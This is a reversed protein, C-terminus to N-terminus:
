SNPSQVVPVRVRCYMWIRPLNEFLEEESTATLDLLRHCEFLRNHHLYNVLQIKDYLPCNDILETEEEGGQTQPALIFALSPNSSLQLSGRQDLV